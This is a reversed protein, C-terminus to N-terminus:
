FLAEEPPAPLPSAQPHSIRQHTRYKPFFGYRSGNHSYTIVLPTTDGPKPQELERLWKRVQAPTINEDLPFVYGLVATPTAIFRGDDDALSILGLALLRADRSFHGMSAWFSPKVTRIRAM